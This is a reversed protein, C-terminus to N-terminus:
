VWLLRQHQHQANQRMVSRTITAPSNPTKASPKHCCIVLGSTTYLSLFPV